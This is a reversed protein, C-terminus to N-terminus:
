TQPEYRKIKIPTDSLRVMQMFAITFIFKVQTIRFAVSHRRYGDSKEYKDVASIADMFIKRKTM